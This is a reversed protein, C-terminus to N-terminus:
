GANPAPSGNPANPPVENTSQAAEHALTTHHIALQAAVKGGAIREKSQTALRHDQSKLQQDPTPPPPPANKAAEVRKRMEEETPVTETVDLGLSDVVHRLIAIIKEDGLLQQLKESTLVKELFSTYLQQLHEKVLVAEAGRAVVNCAGKISDDPNTEMQYDYLKTLTPAIVRRDINGVARRLGKAANGMLMSLGGLTEAAGSANSDGSLYRPIGSMEDARAEFADVVKLLMDAQPDAQWFHLPDRPTTALSTDLQLQLLPRIAKPDQGVALQSLDIGTIPGSALGMNANLSRVCANVMECCDAILDYIANGWIAGPVEDYSSAYYPREGMPDENIACYIIENGILVANAEYYANPDDVHVGHQMLDKGQVSGWFHLGDVQYDPIWTSNTQGEIRRREMDSWLWARLSGTQHYTIIRDIAASDYGPLGKMRWLDARTLRLHEIFDGDQCSSAGPAPYADMPHVASWTMVPEETIVMKNGKWKRRRQITKYPGKLFATPFTSFHIIFDTIANYYNGQDLSAAMVEEMKRSRVEAERGADEVAEQQIEDKHSEMAQAFTTKTMVMGRAQADDAMDARAAAEADNTIRQMVASPLESLPEPEIGWPREGTPLLLERLAAECSRMKSAALPLYPPDGAGADVTWMGALADPSYQGRRAWLCALLRDELTDRARKNRSWSSLIYGVFTSNPQGPLAQGGEEPATTNAEKAEDDSATEGEVVEDDDGTSTQRRQMEAEYVPHVRPKASVALYFPMNDQPPALGAVIDGPGNM